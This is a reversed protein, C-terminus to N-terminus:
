ANLQKRLIDTVLKPNAKGQTAKMVQGMFYGIVKENGDRFQQAQDPNNALVEKVVEELASSDSIQVLGKAEVIADPNGGNAFMEALVEKGIKGSITGDEIMKIMAALHAPAVKCTDIEQNAEVLMAQLDGMIWNGAKKADTGARVVDEFYDAMARTATLVGADYEPIGYQDEFRKRRVQPMEPLGAAIEQEWAESIVIPMLDPDPFYRYDHASEKTRQSFTIGRDADWGRTEQVLTGGEKLVKVQRKLEYEIAKQTGTFSAVNKVETKTGLETTGKPRVSINAEARLSGEEMNCDSVGMYELMQKLTTLYAYAEDASHIDPETVIELLPIGARNFDVGSMGGGLAHTNSATDEELHARTIGIRKMEGNVQVDLHGEYCLPLDYQSIQYNKPLDPYFYNKRDMKSWRSIKCNLALGVAVSYEVAKKNLV